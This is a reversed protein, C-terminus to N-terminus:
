CFIKPMKAGINKEKVSLLTNDVYRKHLKVLPPDFLKKFIARELESMIINGLVPGLLSEMSVRNIQKYIKNNFCFTTKTCAYIILEKM